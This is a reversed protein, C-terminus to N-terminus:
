QAPETLSEFWDPRELALHLDLLDDFTLRPGDHSELLEAPISWHRPTVGEAILLEVAREDAHKQIRDGCAPCRFAYYSSEPQNCVALEFAGPECEVTGCQPCTAEIWTM